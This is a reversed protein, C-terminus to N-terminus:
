CYLVSETVVVPIFAHFIRNTRSSFDRQKDNAYWKVRGGVWQADRAWFVGMEMEMGLDLM